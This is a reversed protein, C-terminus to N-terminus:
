SRAPRRPRQGRARRAGRRHAAQGAGRHLDQREPARAAPRQERRRRGARVRRRAGRRRVPQEGVPVPRPQVPRPRHAPLARHQRGEGPRRRPDLPLAHQPGAERTRGAALVFLERRRNMDLAPAVFSKPVKGLRHFTGRGEGGREVSGYAGNAQSVILRGGPGFDLGRPGKLGSISQEQAVGPAPASGILVAAVAVAVAAATRRSKGVQRMVAVGEAPRRTAGRPAARREFLWSVSCHWLPAIPGASPCVPWSLAPPLPVCCPTGSTRSAGAPSRHPSRPFATSRPGLPVLGRVRM